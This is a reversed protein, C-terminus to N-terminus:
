APRVHRSLMAGSLEQMISCMSLAAVGVAGWFASASARQWAQAPTGDTKSWPRQHIMMAAVLAAILAIGFPLGELQRRLTREDRLDDIERQALAEDETSRQFRTIERYAHGAACPDDGADGVWALREALAVCAGVAPELWGGDHRPGTVLHVEGPQRFLGCGGAAVLAARVRADLLARILDVPAAELLFAHGFAADGLDLTREARERERGRGREVARVHGGAGARPRLELEFDPAPTPVPVHCHLVWGEGPSPGVLEGRVGRMTFVFGDKVRSVEAGLTQLEEEIRAGESM